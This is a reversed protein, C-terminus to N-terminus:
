GYREISFSLVVVDDLKYKFCTKYRENSSFSAGALQSCDREAIQCLKAFCIVVVFLGCCVFCPADGKIDQWCPASYRLREFDANQALHRAPSIGCM